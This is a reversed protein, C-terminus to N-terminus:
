ELLTLLKYVLPQFKSEISNFSLVEQLFSEIVRENAIVQKLNLSLSSIDINKMFNRNLLKFDILQLTLHCLIGYRVKLSLSHKGLILVDNIYNILSNIEGKSQRYGKSTLSRVIKDSIEKLDSSDLKSVDGILEKDHIQENNDDVDIKLIKSAKKKLLRDKIPMDEEESDSSLGIDEDYEQDDKANEIKLSLSDDIDDDTPTPSLNEEDLVPNGFQDEDPVNTCVKLPDSYLSPSPAHVKSEEPELKSSSSISSPSPPITPNKSSVKYVSPDANSSVESEIEEMKDAKPEPNNEPILENDDINQDIELEMKLENVTETDKKVEDLKENSPQKRFKEFVKKLAKSRIQPMGAKMKIGTEIRELVQKDWSGDLVENISSPIHHLLLPKERLLPPLKKKDYSFVMRSAMEKTFKIKSRKLKLKHYMLKLRRIQKKRHSSFVNRHGKRFENIDNIKEINGHGDLKAFKHLNGCQLTDMFETWKNDNLPDRLYKHGENYLGMDSISKTHTPSDASQQTLRDDDGDFSKEDDEEEDESDEYDSDEEYISKERHRGLELVIKGDEMEQEMLIDKSLFFNPVKRKGLASRNLKLSNSKFLGKQHFGNNFGTNTIDTGSLVKRAFRFKFAKLVDFLSSRRVDFATTPLPTKELTDIDELVPLNEKNSEDKIDMADGEEEKIDELSQNRKPIDSYFDNITLPYSEYLIDGFKTSSIHPWLRPDQRTKFSPDNVIENEIYVLKAINIDESHKLLVLYDLSEKIMKNNLEKHKDLTRTPFDHVPWISDLGLFKISKKVLPVYYEPISSLYKHLTSSVQVQGAVDDVCSMASQCISFLTKFDYILIHFKLRGENPDFVLIGFPKNENESNSKNERNVFLYFGKNFLHAKEFINLHANIYYTDKPLIDVNFKENVPKFYIIPIGDRTGEFSTTSNTFVEPIPIPILDVPDNASFLFAKSVAPHQSDTNICSNEGPEILERMEIIVKPNLSGNSDDNPIYSTAIAQFSNRLKLGHLSFFNHRITSLIKDIQKFGRIATPSNYFIGSCAETMKEISIRADVSGGQIDCIDTALCVTLMCQDWRFPHKYALLSADQRIRFSLEPTVSFRPKWQKNNDIFVTSSRLTQELEANNMGKHSDFPNFTKKTMNEKLSGQINNHQPLLSKVQLKGDTVWLIGCPTSYKPYRGMGFTEVNNATRISALYDYCTGLAVDATTTDTAKLYPLIKLVKESNQRLVKFCGSGEEYTILSFVPRGSSLISKDNQNNGLLGTSYDENPRKPLSNNYQRPDDEIQIFRQVFGLACEFYSLGLYAESNMSVSTDLLIVWHFNAFGNNVTTSQALSGELTPPIKHVYPNPHEGFSNFISSTDTDPEATSSIGYDPIYSSSEGSM